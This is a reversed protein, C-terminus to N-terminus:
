ATAEAEDPNNPRFAKPESAKKAALKAKREAREERLKANRADLKAKRAALQDDSMPTCGKPLKPAQKKTAPKRMGAEEAAKEEVHRIHRCVGRFRYGPCSCSMDKMNVLYFGSGDRAKHFAGVGPLIEITELESVDKKLLFAAGELSHHGITRNEDEPLLAQNVTGTKTLTAKNNM